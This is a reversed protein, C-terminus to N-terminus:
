RLEGCCGKGPGSPGYSGFEAVGHAWKSKWLAYAVATASFIGLRFVTLFVANLFSALGRISKMIRRAWFVFCNSISFGHYIM